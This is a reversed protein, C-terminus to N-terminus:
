RGRRRLGLLLLGSGVLVATGPEPIIGAKFGYQPLSGSGDKLQADATVEFGGAFRSDLVVVYEANGDGTLTGLVVNPGGLDFTITIPSLLQAEDGSDARARIALANIAGASFGTEVSAGNPLSPDLTITGVGDYDFSVGHDNTSPSGSWAHQKPNGAGIPIDNADVVSYEWDGSTGANGWRVNGGFEKTFNANALFDADSGFFSITAAPAESAVLALGACVIVLSSSLRM